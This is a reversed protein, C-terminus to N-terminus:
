AGECVEVDQRVVAQQGAGAADVIEDLRHLLEPHRRNRHGILAAEEAGDLEEFGRV